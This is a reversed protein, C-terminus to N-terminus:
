GPAARDEHLLHEHAAALVARANPFTLRALADDRPLWLHDIHEHSLRVADRRAGTAALRFVVTKRVRGVRSKYSYRITRRFGAVFRLDTIATEEAVERRTTEEETEGPERHGKPLDWHRGVYQLLLYVPGAAEARFVVAGCSVVERAGSEGGPAGTPRRGGDSM